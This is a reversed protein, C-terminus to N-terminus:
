DGFEDALIDFIEDVQNEELNFNTNQLEIKRAERKRIRQSRKSIKHQPNNDIWRRIDPDDDIYAKVIAKFFKSQKLGDEMFKAILRAHTDDDDYFVFKKKTKGYEKM